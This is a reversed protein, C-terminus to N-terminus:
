PWSVGVQLLRSWNRSATLFLRAIMERPTPRGILYREGFGILKRSNQTRWVGTNNSTARSFAALGLSHPNGWDEGIHFVEDQQMNFRVRYMLPTGLNPTAALNSARAQEEAQVFKRGINLKAALEDGFHSYPKFQVFSAFSSHFYEDEPRLSLPQAQCM